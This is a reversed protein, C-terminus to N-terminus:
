AVQKRRRRAYGLGSLGAIGCLALSSPEPVAAPAVNVGFTGNPTVVNDSFFTDDVSFFLYNAGTPIALTVGSGVPGFNNFLNHKQLPCGRRRVFSKRCVRPSSYKVSEMFKCV